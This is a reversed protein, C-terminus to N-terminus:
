KKTTQRKIVTRRQVQQHGCRKGFLKKCRRRLEQGVLNEMAILSPKWTILCQLSGDEGLHVDEIDFGKGVVEGRGPDPSMSYTQEKRYPKLSTQSPKAKGM